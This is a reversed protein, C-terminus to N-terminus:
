NGCLDFDQGPTVFRHGCARFQCRLNGRRVPPRCGPGLRNTRCQRRRNREILPSKAL